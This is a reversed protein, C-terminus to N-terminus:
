RFFAETYIRDEPVGQARLGKWMDRVFSISGCILYEKDNHIANPPIVSDINIRGKKVRDHPNDEQTVHRIISFNPYTAGLAIFEDDFIHEAAYKASHYLRVSRQPNEKLTHHIISRFPTVGIGGAIAIMETEPYETAFFGYPLSATITDGPKMACLRGSFEGIKKVTIDCTADHPASSFSYAKGELTKTEPFYVTIFQGAIYTPVTGDALKLKLTMIDPAEEVVGHVIYIVKNEM